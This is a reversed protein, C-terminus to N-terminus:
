HIIKHVMKREVNCQKLWDNVWEYALDRKKDCFRSVDCDKHSFHIAVKDETKDCVTKISYPDDSLEHVLAYIGNVIVPKEDYLDMLGTTKSMFIFPHLRINLTILARMDSYIAHTHHNEIYTELLLKTMRNWEDASGSLLHPVVGGYSTFRGDHPLRDGYYFMDSHLPFTDFDSMWGGGSAGMALWRIYCHRNYINLAKSAEIDDFAKIFSSYLPNRKADLHTLVVPEWMADSWSNKWAELLSLEMPNKNGLKDYYTHIKPRITNSDKVVDSEEETQLSRHIFSISISLKLHYL